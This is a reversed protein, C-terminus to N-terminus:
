AAQAAASLALAVAHALRPAAYPLVTAAIVIAWRLSRSSRDDFM